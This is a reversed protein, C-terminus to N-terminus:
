VFTVLVVEHRNQVDVTLGRLNWLTIFPAQIALLIIREWGMLLLVLFGLLILPSLVLFIALVVPYLLFLPIWISFWHHKNEIKVHLLMPPWNM